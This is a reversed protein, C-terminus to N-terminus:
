ALTIIQAHVRKTEPDDRERKADRARIDKMTKSQSALIKDTDLPRSM